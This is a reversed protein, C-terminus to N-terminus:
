GEHEGVNMLRGVVVKGDHTIRGTVVTQSQLNAIRILDGKSGSELARGRATLKMAPTTVLMTILANKEVLVPRRLDSMLVPIGPRLFRRPTLGILESEDLIARAPVRRDRVRLWEIDNEGIVEGHRIRRVAVPVEIMRYISGGASIRQVVKNDMMAAIMASFRSSGPRYSLSEISLVSGKPIKVNRNSVGLEFALDNGAVGRDALAERVMSEIREDDIVESAREIVVRQRASRARWDLGFNQALRSLVYADFVVPNDVSPAEAIIQESMPGTNSFVDGLRVNAGAVIAHEHATVPHSGTGSQAASLPDQAGLIALGILVTRMRTMFNM